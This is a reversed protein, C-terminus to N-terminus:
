VGQRVDVTDAGGSSAQDALRRVDRFVLLDVLKGFGVDLDDAVRDFRRDLDFTVRAALHLLRDLAQHVETAVAAKTMALGERHATLTGAGVSASALTRALVEPTAGSRLVM